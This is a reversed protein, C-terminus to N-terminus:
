TAALLDGLPQAEAIRRFATALLPAVSVVEMPLPGPVIPLTDSVLLRTIPLARLREEAPGVFLGHTAAVIAEPRAGAALVARLAEAITGGTSIMDDVLIPRRGRVSGSIDEAAVESSSVRTKHVIAVPLKLRKAYRRALKAAGLDPAVVVDDDDRTTELADALIPVATLHDVPAAFFGEVAPAHLDITIVRSWRGASFMRAVVAAGLPQGEGTRREQRAYGLYPVVAAVSLAGSRNCADAILMLELLSDGITGALPQVVFVDRGRAGSISVHLDGDPFREVVRDINGALDRAMASALAPHGSGSIIFPTM